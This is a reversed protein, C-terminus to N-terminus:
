KQNKDVMKFGIERLRDRVVDFCNPNSLNELVLYRYADCGNDIRQIVRVFTGDIISIKYDLDDNIIRLSRDSYFFPFRPLKFCKVIDCLIQDEISIISTIRNLRESLLMTENKVFEINKYTTRKIINKPLNDYLDKGILSPSLDDSHSTDFGIWWVSSSQRCIERSLQVSFGSFTLGGYIDADLDNYGSFWLPDNKDEIAVYGCLNGFKNRSICCKRNFHEFTLIDPENNWPGDPWDDKCINNRQMCKMKGLTEM